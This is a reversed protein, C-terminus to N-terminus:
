YYLAEIIMKSLLIGVAWLSICFVLWTVFALTQHRPPYQHHGFRVNM